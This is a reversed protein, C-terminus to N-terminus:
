APNQRLGRDVLDCSRVRFTIPTTEIDHMVPERQVLARLRASITKNWKM